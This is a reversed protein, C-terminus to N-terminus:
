TSRKSFSVTTSSTALISPPNFTVSFVRAWALSISSFALFDHGVSKLRKHCMEAVIGCEERWYLFIGEYEQMMEEIQAFTGPQKLLHVM